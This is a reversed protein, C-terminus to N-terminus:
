AKCLANNEHVNNLMNIQIKIEVSLAVLVLHPLNILKFNIVQYIISDPYLHKYKVAKVREM